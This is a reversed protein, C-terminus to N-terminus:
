KMGILDWTHQLMRGSEDPDSPLGFSIQFKDPAKIAAQSNSLIYVNRGMNCM